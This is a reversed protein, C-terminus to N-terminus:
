RRRASTRRGKATAREPPMLGLVPELPVFEESGGASRIAASLRAIVDIPHAATAAELRTVAHGAAVLAQERAEQDARVARIEEATGVYKVHGDFEIVLWRPQGDDLTGIRIALDPYCTRDHCRIEVQAVVDRRGWTLVIWRTVSEWASEAWPMTWQLIDLARRRGRAGRPLRGLALLLEHRERGARREGPARDRRDPASVRALHHDAVVLAAVPRTFRAHDLVTRRPTTVPVHHATTVDAPDLVFRHREVDDASETAAGPGVVLQVKHPIDLTRLGLLIAASSLCFTHPTKLRDHVAYIRARHELRARDAGEVTTPLGVVSGRRLRSPVM